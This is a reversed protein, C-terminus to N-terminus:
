ARKRLLRAGVYVAVLVLVAEVITAIGILLTVDRWFNFPFIQVLPDTRPNLLWLDNRFGLRHFATFLPGFAVTSITGLILVAAITLAAGNRMWRGVLSWAASRFRMAGIAGMLLLFLASGRQVQWTLHFMGKVDAMHEVEQDSFLIIRQSNVEAMVLLPETDSNFYDQIDQGVARLGETTIGSRLTVNNRDFLATYLPLNNSAWHVNSTVLVLLLAIPALVGVIRWVLSRLRTTGAM